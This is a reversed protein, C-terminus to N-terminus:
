QFFLWWIDIEQNHNQAIMTYSTVKPPFQTIPMCSRETPNRVVGHSNVTLESSFFLLMIMPFFKLTHSCHAEGTALTTFFFFFFFSSETRSVHTQDRTLFICQLLFHCGVGTGQRSFGWPCLLRTPSLGYLWLTLCSQEHRDQRRGPPPPPKTTTDSQQLGMSQLKDPEEIWPIRCALISSHTAM